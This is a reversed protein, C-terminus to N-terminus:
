VNVLGLYIAWSCQKKKKKFTKLKNIRILIIYAVTLKDTLQEIVGYSNLWAYNVKANVNSLDVMLCQEEVFFYEERPISFISNLDVRVFVTEWLGYYEM